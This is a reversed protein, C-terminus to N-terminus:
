LLHLLTILGAINIFAKLKMCYLQFQMLTEEGIDLKFDYLQEM